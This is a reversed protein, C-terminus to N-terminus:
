TGAGACVTASTRAYVQCSPAGATEVCAFHGCADLHGACHREGLLQKTGADYFCMWYPADPLHYGDGSASDVHFTLYGDCTGTENQPAEAGSCDLMAVAADYTAPCGGLAAVCHGDVLHPGTVDTSTGCGCTAAALLLAVLVPVSRTMVAALM